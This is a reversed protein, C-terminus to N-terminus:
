RACGWPQWGRVEYLARARAVQEEVSADSPLGTGGVSQWTSLDFQWMGYYGNGTNARANGSSECMVVRYAFEPDEPFSETLIELLPGGSVVLPPAAPTVAAPLVTAAPTPTAVPGLLGVADLDTEDLTPPVEDRSLTFPSDGTVGWKAEVAEILARDIRLAVTETRTAEGGAKATSASSETGSTTLSSTGLTAVAIAGALTVALTAGAVWAGLRAGQLFSTSLERRM